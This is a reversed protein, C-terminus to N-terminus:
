GNQRLRNIYKIIRTVGLALLGLVAAALIVAGPLFIEKGASLDEYFSKVFTGMAIVCCCIIVTWLVANKIYIINEIGKRM